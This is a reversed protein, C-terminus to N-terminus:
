SQGEGSSIARKARRQERAHRERLRQRELYSAAGVMSFKKLQQCEEENLTIGEKLKKRFIREKELTGNPTKTQARYPRFAGVGIIQCSVFRGALMRDRVFSFQSCWVAELVRKDITGNYFKQLYAVVDEKKIM